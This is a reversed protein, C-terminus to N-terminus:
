ARIAIMRIEMKPLLVQNQDVVLPLINPMVVVEDVGKTLLNTFLPKVMTDLTLQSIPIPPVPFTPQAYGSPSPPIKDVPKLIGGLYKVEPWQDVCSALFSVASDPAQLDELKLIIWPLVQFNQRQGGTSGEVLVTELRKMINLNIRCDSAVIRSEDSPLVTAGQPHQPIIGKGRGRGEFLYAYRRVILTWEGQGVTFKRGDISQMRVRKPDIDLGAEYAESTVIYTRYGRNRFLERLPLYELAALNMLDVANPMIVVQTPPRQNLRQYADLLSEAYAAQIGSTAFGWHRALIESTGVGASGGSIDFASLHYQGNQLANRLEAALDKTVFGKDAVAARLYKPPYLFFDVKSILRGGANETSILEPLNSSCWRTLDEVEITEGNERRCDAAISLNASVRDIADAVMKTVRFMIEAYPRGIKIRYGSLSATGNLAIGKLEANSRFLAEKHPLHLAHLGVNKQPDLEVLALSCIRSGGGRQDASFLNFIIDRLQSFRPSRRKGHEAYRGDASNAAEIMRAASNRANHAIFRAFDQDEGIMQLLNHISPDQLLRRDWKFVNEVPNLQIKGLTLHSISRSIAKM